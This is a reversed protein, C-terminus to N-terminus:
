QHKPNIITKFVVDHHNFNAWLIQKLDTHSLLKRINKEYCNIGNTITSIKFASNRDFLHFQQNGVCEGDYFIPISHITEETGGLMHCLVETYLSPSMFLGLSNILNMIHLKFCIAEKNEIWHEFHVDYKFREETSLNTTVFHYQVSESKFNILKGFKKEAIMLYNLLQAQHSGNLEDVAKLEYIISNNIILDAFYCKTFTEYVVKLPVEVDVSNIGPANNCKYALANQYIKESCFRGLTNQIEFAYGMVIEDIDHFVKKQEIHM